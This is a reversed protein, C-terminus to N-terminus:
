RTADSTGAVLVTAEVRYIQRGTCDSAPGVYILTAGDVHDARGITHPRRYCAIGICSEDARRESLINGGYDSCVMKRYAVPSGERDVGVFALSGDPLVIRDQYDGFAFDTAIQEASFPAVLSTQM